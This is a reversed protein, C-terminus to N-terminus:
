FRSTPCVSENTPNQLSLGLGGRRRATWNSEIEVTGPEGTGWHQFSSWRWQDPEKVLGRSVPNRHIYRRTAVIAKETFINRDFYRHQWHPRKPQQVSVSLKLAQIAVSLAARKPESMLIHVHEPMVVYATIFFDYRQRMTELSREFLDRTGPSGLYPLRRYCSFTVFHLDGTQQYRVLDKAM